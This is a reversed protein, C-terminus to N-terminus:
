GTALARILVPDGSVTIFNFVFDEGEEGIQVGDISGVTSNREAAVDAIFAKRTMNNSYSQNLSGDLVL